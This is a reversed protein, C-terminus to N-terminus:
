KLFISMGEGSTYASVRRLTIYSGYIAVTSGSSNQFRIGEIILYQSSSPVNPTGVEFPIRNMQGDVIARGDHEAKITIPRSVTGSVRVNMASYYIGDRLILTDGPNLDSVASSLNSEPSVYFDAAKSASPFTM